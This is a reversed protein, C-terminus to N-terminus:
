DAMEIYIAIYVRELKESNNFICSCDANKYINKDVDRIIEKVYIGFRFVPDLFLTVFM